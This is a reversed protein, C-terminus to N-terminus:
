ALESHKMAAAGGDSNYLRGEPKPRYKSEAVVGFSDESCADASTVLALYEAEFPEVYQPRYSQAPFALITASM